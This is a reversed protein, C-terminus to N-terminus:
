TAWLFPAGAESAAPGLADSRHAQPARDLVLVVAGPVPEGWGEPIVRGDVRQALCSTAAVMLFALAAPVRLRVALRTLRVSQM